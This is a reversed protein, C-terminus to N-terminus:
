CDLTHLPKPVNGLKMAVFMWYLLLSIFIYRSSMYGVSLSFLIHLSKSLKLNMRLCSRKYNRLYEIILAGTYKKFFKILINANSKIFVVYVSGLVDGSGEINALNRSNQM